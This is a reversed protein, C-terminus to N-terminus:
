YKVNLRRVGFSGHTESYDYAIKQNRDKRGGRALDKIWLAHLERVVWEVHPVVDATVNVVLIVLCVM